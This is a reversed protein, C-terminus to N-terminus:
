CASTVIFCACFSTSFWLLLQVHLPSYVFLALSFILNFQSSPSVVHCKLADWFKHMSTRAKHIKAYIPPMTCLPISNCKVRDYWLLSTWLFYSLTCYSSLSTTLHPVKDLGHFLCGLPMSQLLGLPESIQISLRLQKANLALACANYLHSVLCMRGESMTCTRPKTPSLRSSVVTTARM